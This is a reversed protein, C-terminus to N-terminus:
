KKNVFPVNHKIILKVKKIHGTLLFEKFFLPNALYPCNPVLLLSNNKTKAVSFALVIFARQRSAFIDRCCM